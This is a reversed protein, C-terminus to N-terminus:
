VARKGDSIVASRVLWWFVALWLAMGYRFRTFMTM